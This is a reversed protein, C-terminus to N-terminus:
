EGTERHSLELLDLLQLLQARDLVAALGRDPEGGFGGDADVRWPVGFPELFMHGTFRASGRGAASRRRAYRQSARTQRAAHQVKLAASPNSNMEISSEPFMVSFGCM